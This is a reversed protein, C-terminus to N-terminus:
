WKRWPRMENALERLVRQPLVSKFMDSNLIIKNETARESRWEKRM